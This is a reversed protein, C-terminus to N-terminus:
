LKLPNFDLFNKWHIIPELLIRADDICAGARCVPRSHTSSPVLDLLDGDPYAALFRCRYIDSTTFQVRM